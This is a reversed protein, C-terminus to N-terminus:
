FTGIGNESTEVYANIEPQPTPPIPGQVITAGRVSAKVDVSWDCHGRAGELYLGVENAIQRVMITAERLRDLAELRLMKAHEALHAAKNPVWKM